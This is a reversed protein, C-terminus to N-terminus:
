KNPNIPEHNEVLKNLDTKIIVPSRDKSKITKALAVQRSRAVLNIAFEKEIDAGCLYAEQMSIFVDKMVSM